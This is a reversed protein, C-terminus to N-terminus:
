VSFSIEVQLFSSGCMKLYSVMKCRNDGCSCGGSSSDDVLVVCIEYYMPEGIILGHM